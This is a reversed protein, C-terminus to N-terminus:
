VERLSASTPIDDKADIWVAHFLTNGDKDLISNWHKNGPRGLVDFYVETGLPLGLRKVGYETIVAKKLGM